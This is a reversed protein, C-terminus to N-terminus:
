GVVLNVASVDSVSVSACSELFFTDKICLCMKFLRFGEQACM